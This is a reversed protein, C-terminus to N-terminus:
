QESGECQIGGGCMFCVKTGVLVGFSNAVDNSGMACSLVFAIFGAVIVIWLM